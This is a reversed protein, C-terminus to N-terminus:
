PMNFRYGTQHITELFASPESKLYKRLRAIFVDMSRGLFYDNKGWVHTLIEERRMIKDPHQCFFELLRAERSTLTIEENGAIIKMEDPLFRLKGIIYEKAVQSFLMKNRRLFVYMRSLLEKMSFPKTIYDDAGTEFGRLKDEEMSKATLFIIPVVDNKQRIKKALSFGDRNPMNVDLLCIDPQKKQFQEWAVEGDPCNIVEFGEEELNDKIIFGLQLDDEAILVKTKKEM